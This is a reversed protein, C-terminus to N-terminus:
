SGDETVGIEHKASIHQALRVFPGEGCEPCLEGATAEPPLEVVELVERLLGTRKLAALRLPPIATVLGEPVVEGNAFEKGLLTMTRGSVHPM